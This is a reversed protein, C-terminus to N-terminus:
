PLLEVGVVVAGGAVVVTGLTVVVVVGGVVVVVVRANGGSLCTVGPLSHMSAVRKQCIHWSQVVGM